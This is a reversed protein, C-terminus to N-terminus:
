VIWVWIYMRIFSGGGRIIWLLFKLDVWIYGWIWGLVVGCVFGQSGYAGKSHVQKVRELYEKPFDVSTKPDSPYNMM